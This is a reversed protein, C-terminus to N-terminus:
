YDIGDTTLYDKDVKFSPLYEEKDWLYVYHGYIALLKKMYERTQSYPCLEVFEDLPRKGQRDVWRSMAKPGANFSGAGLAIQGRYKKLLHGIYWAGFQINGEPDYLVDDTYERGIHPAVRRSTPPIMQLLGIADAYSVDFPNYASEKQMISYLYRPPNEGSQGHKEIFSRYALPYMAEWMPRAQKVAHPDKRLAASGHTEALLHPRRFNESKRYLDFLVPLARPTGYKSLLGSEVRTLEQGAEAKMGFSLLEETRRLREDELVQKDFPLIFEPLGAAEKRAPDLFLPVPQGADRLRVRGLMGYFSFPDQEALKRLVSYGEKEKGLKLQSVGFWYQGKQGTLGSRKGVHEFTPLAGSYDGLLYRSWGIYWRAEEAFTGTGYKRLTEELRVIAEQFKNRNYELWGILFSAEASYKSRPHLNLMERYGAIADDDRDIRSLARAGHFMADAQREGSVRKAVSFLIESAKGYNHRSRYLSIGLWYDVEDRVLPAMDLPLDQLEKVAETWRRSSLLNKGRELREAVDLKAERDLERWKILAAEALPHAPYEVYLKRLLSRAEGKQTESGEPGGQGGSLLGALHFRVTGVDVGNKGQSLANRYAAEADKKQSLLRFCDAAFARSLPVLPTNEVDEVARLHIAAQRCGEPKNQEQALLGESQGLLFFLYDRSRYERFAHKAYLSLLVSRTKEYEGARFATVAQAIAMREKDIPKAKGKGKPGALASGCVFFWVTACLGTARWLFSAKQMTASSLAM